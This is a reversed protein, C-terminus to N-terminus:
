VYNVGLDTPFKIALSWISTVAQLDVLILREMVVDYALSYDVAIFTALLTQCVTASGINTPPRIMGIPVLGEGLFDYITQSCSELDKVSIKM